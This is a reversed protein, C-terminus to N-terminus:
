FLRKQYANALAKLISVADSIPGFEKSLEAQELKRLRFESGSKEKITLM